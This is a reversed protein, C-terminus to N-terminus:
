QKKYLIAWVSGAIPYSDRGPANTLSFTLQGRPLDALSAATAATVAPLSPAVYNGARNKLTAAPLRNELAYRHELYGLAGPTESIFRAVGSNLRKEEAPSPLKLQKTTGYQRGWDESVRTLYETWIHSTGSSDSRYVPVIEMHPLPQGPNLVKIDDHDWFRIKR